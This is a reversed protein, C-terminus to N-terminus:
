STILYFVQSISRYIRLQGGNPCVIPRGDNREVETRSQADCEVRRKPGSSGRSELFAIVLYSNVRPLGIRLEAFEGSYCVIGIVEVSVM